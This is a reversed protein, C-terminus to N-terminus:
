EKANKDKRNHAIIWKGTKTHKVVIGKDIIEGKEGSLSGDNIVTISDGKIIVTCTCGLSKGNWEEFAVKYTYTGSAPKQSYLDTVAVILILLVAIKMYMNNLDPM